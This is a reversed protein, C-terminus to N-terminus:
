YVGEGLRATLEADEGFTGNIRPWRPETALDIQPHLAIRIGVALYEKRVIDAFKKVLDADGIAAFGLTECWQSFDQASMSFISNSFHNRPDSAITVPIGLRTEESFRQLKNYWAAVVQAGPIQWFNFHSMLQNTIQTVAARGFGKTEPDVEISGDENVVTGNIFMIGAKEDLTMQGLLDEVRDDVPRRPDEYIDLKGNKNLDRYPIGNETRILTSYNTVVEPLSNMTKEKRWPVEHGDTSKSDQAM